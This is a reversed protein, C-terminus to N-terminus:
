TRTHSLMLNLYNGTAVHMIINAINDTLKRSFRTFSVNLSINNPKQIAQHILISYHAYTTKANHLVSATSMYM